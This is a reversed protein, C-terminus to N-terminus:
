PQRAAKYEYTDKRIRTTGRSTAVVLVDGDRSLTLGDPRSGKRWPVILTALAGDGRVRLIHQREEFREVKPRQPVNVVDELALPHISFLDAFERLVKEDGLGQVDIWCTTNEELLNKLEAVAAVDHEELHAPTYKMVRIKPPQAHSNIMLTGPKAGVPPHRKRVM